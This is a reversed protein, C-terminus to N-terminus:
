EVRGPQNQGDASVTNKPASSFSPNPSSQLTTLTVAPPTTTITLTWGGALTGISGSVDDVIYLNWVGNPDTGFFQTMFSVSGDPAALDGDAVAPAPPAFFNLGSSYDTPQFTGSVLSTSPVFTAGDAFAVTLNVVQHM